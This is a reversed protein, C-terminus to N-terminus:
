WATHKMKIAHAMIAWGIFYSAVSQIGPTWNM